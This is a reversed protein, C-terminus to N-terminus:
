FSQLLKNMPDGFLAEMVQTKTATGRNDRMCYPFCFLHNSTLQLTQLCREAQLKAYILCCHALFQVLCFSHLNMSSLSSNSNANLVWSKNGAGHNNHHRFTCVNPPIKKSIPVIYEHFLTAQFVHLSLFSFLITIAM